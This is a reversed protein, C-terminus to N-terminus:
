NQIPPFETSSSNTNAAFSSEGSVSKTSQNKQSFDVVGSYIRRTATNKQSAHSLGHARNASDLM